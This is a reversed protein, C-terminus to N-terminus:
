RRRSKERPEPSVSEAVLLAIGSTALSEFVGSWELPDGPTSAARPIHVMASWLFIMVSTWIAALCATKPIWM